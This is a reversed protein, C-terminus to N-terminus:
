RAPTNGVAAVEAALAVLQRDRELRGERWGRIFATGREDLYRNVRDALPGGIKKGDLARQLFLIAECLQVGERFMEYRGTAIPGDPGPALLSRTSQGRVGGRGAPLMYFRGKRRPDPIPFFDSCLYGLGDHGRMIMEEPKMLLTLLPSSDRHQNRSVSNWIKEDRGPALLARYGRASLRGQTWVCESYRIPMAEGKKSGKFSGGLRGSHSTYSWVADPWIRRATSVAGPPPTWCYSQHGLCTVDFWGRKEIRKRLQDLAPKWFRYSEETGPPPQELPSIKGTAPDLLAVAKATLWQTRNKRNIDGWVNVQLPLPKKITQEILDFYKDLASFDYSYGDGDKARVWRVISNAPSAPGGRLGVALDVDVRRANIEAMLALSRRILEFHRDSWYEVGYYRALSYPSLVNLQRVRFDVPDPLAWDHITLHVPIETPPLGDARVTVKGEYNGPKANKPVRVTIWVPAVAGARASNRGKYRPVRTPVPEVLGDFLHGPRWSESPQARRGCRLRVASAPLKPAGGTMALESVVVKLGDIAKDSSVVFRGSFVGNRVANISIPRLPEGPDGYRFVSITDYPPCNWVQVGSPRAVNPRVASGPAATLGLGRLAVYAWLGHVRYMGGVARRTVKTAAENVPARHAQVALVNVGKRLLRAPIVVDRLYRYRRAFGKPNEKEFQLYKNGPEVYLDDPYKEALTDPKIDGAPLHKRAVEQGNLFVAVGGVYKLSLRLDNVKAPDDVVFKARACIISNPTATHLASLRRGTASGRNKELPARGLSWGSDDFEVSRWAPDPLLSQYEPIRKPKRGPIMAPVFKGDAGIVVPTKYVWFTRLVTSNSLVVLRHEQKAAEAASGTSAGVAAAVIVITIVSLQRGIM